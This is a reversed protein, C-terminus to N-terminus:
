GWLSEFTDTFNSLKKNDFNDEFELNWEAKIFDLLRSIPAQNYSVISNLTRQSFSIRIDLSELIKIRNLINFARKSAEFFNNIEKKIMNQKLEESELSFNMLDEFDEYHKKPNKISKNIIRKM